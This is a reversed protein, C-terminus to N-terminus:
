LYRIKAIAGALTIVVAALFLPNTLLTMMSVNEILMKFLFAGLVIGSGTAAELKRGHKMGAVRLVTRGVFYGFPLSFLMILFGMSGIIAAIYGAALSILAAGILNSAPVESLSSNTNRGCEPCKMGVPTAVMCKPCIPDGCSACRIVTKEQPHRSCYVERTTDETM